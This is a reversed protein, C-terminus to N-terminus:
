LAEEADAYNDFYQTSYINRHWRQVRILADAGGWAKSSVPCISVTIRESYATPDTPHRLTYDIVTGYELQEYCRRIKSLDKASLQM